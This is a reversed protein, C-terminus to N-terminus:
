RVKSICARIQGLIQNTYDDLVEDEIWDKKIVDLKFPKGVCVKVTYMPNLELSKAPLVKNAGCIGVPIIPVGMSLGVVAAGKRPKPKETVKMPARWRRAGEPFLVVLRGQRIHDRIKDVTGNVVILNFFSYFWKLFWIKFNGLSIVWSLNILNYYFVRGIIFVDLYSSHNSVIIFPGEGEKPINEKGEIVLDVNLDVMVRLIKYFFKCIRKKIIGHM